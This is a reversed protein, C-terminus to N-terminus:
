HVPWKKIAEATQDHPLNYAKLEMLRQHLDEIGYRRISSGNGITLFVAEFYLHERYYGLFIISEKRRPDTTVLKWFKSHLRRSPVERLISIDNTSLHSCFLRLMETLQENSRKEM